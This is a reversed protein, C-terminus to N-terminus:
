RRTSKPTTPSAARPTCTGSGSARVPVPLLLDRRLVAGISWCCGAAEDRHGLEPRLRVCRRLVHLGDRAGLGYSVAMSIGTFVAHIGYLVPAVFM